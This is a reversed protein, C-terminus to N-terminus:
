PFILSNTKPFQSLGFYPFGKNKSFNVKGNSEYSWHKRNLTCSKHLRSQLFYTIKVFVRNKCHFIWFKQPYPQSSFKQVLTGFPVTKYWIQDLVDNPTHAVLWTKVSYSSLSFPVRSRGNSRKVKLTWYWKLLRTIRFAQVMIISELM